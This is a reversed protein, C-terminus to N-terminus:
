PAPNKHNDDWHEVIIGDKVRFMDFANNTYIEGPRTPDPLDRDWVLVVLDGEAFSAILRKVSHRKGAKTRRIAAILGERGQSINPNHQVYDEAIYRAVADEDLNVIVAEWMELVLQRNKEQVSLEAAPTSAAWALAALAVSIRVFRSLISSQTM